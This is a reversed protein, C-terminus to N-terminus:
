APKEGDEASEVVPSSFDKGSAAFFEGEEVIARAEYLLVGATCFAAFAKMKDGVHARDCWSCDNEGGSIWLFYAVSIADYSDVDLYSFKEKTELRKGKVYQNVKRLAKALVHIIQHREIDPDNYPITKMVSLAITVAEAGIEDRIDEPIDPLKDDM